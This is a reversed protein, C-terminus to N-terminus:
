ETVTVAVNRSDYWDGDYAVARLLFTGPESFSVTTLSEVEVPGPQLPFPTRAPTFTVTGPGRYHVWRVASNARRREMEGDDRVAATLALTAPLAVTAEAKGVSLQPPTNEGRPGPLEYIPLFLGIARDIKGNARVTWVVEDESTWDAPVQVSFVMTERRQVARGFRRRPVFVTPQGRDPGGPEVRNDPGVPVNLMQEWNRNLYGFWLEITGDDNRTWGEYIPAVRMGRNYQIQTDPIDIEQGSALGGAVVLGATAVVWSWRGFRRGSPSVNSM